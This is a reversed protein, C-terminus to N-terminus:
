IKAGTKKNLFKTTEDTLYQYSTAKGKAFDINYESYVEAKSEFYKQLDSVKVVGKKAHLDLFSKFSM